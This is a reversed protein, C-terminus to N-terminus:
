TGHSWTHEPFFRSCPFCCSHCCCCWCCFLAGCMWWEVIRCWGCIELNRQNSSDGWSAHYNQDNNGCTRDPAPFRSSTAFALFIFWHDLFIFHIASRHVVTLIILIFIIRFSNIVVVVVIIIFLSLSQLYWYIDISTMSWINNYFEENGWIKWSQNGTVLLQHCIATNSVMSLPWSHLSDFIKCSEQCRWKAALIITVANLWRSYVKDKTWAKRQMSFM